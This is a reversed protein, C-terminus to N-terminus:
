SAAHEKAMLARVVRRGEAREEDKYISLNYQQLFNFETHFKADVWAREEATFPPADSGQKHQAWRAREEDSWNACVVPPEPAVDYKAGPHADGLTLAWLNGYPEVIGIQDGKENRLAENDRDIEFPPTGGVICCKSTPVHLVDELVAIHNRSGMGSELQLRVTGIGAVPM